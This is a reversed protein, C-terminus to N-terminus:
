AKAVGLVRLGRDALATVQSDLAATQSPDLHCLDAIAEPAGKAAIVYDHGSARGGSTRSRWCGRRCRTSACWRGIARAPARHGGSRREGLAKLAQEMPDFPDSQSALIGFEVLEHFTEPLTDPLDSDVAVAQGDVVLARVAMRNQTLTGTKDVCLM